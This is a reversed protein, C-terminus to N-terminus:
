HYTYVVYLFLRFLYALWIVLLFPGLAILISISTIIIYFRRQTKKRAEIALDLQLQSDTIAKKATNFEQQIKDLEDFEKDLEEQIEKKTIPAIKESNLHKNLDHQRMQLEDLKEKINQEMLETEIDSYM